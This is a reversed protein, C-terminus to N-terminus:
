RRRGNARTGGQTERSKLAFIDGGLHEFLDLRRVISYYVANRMGRENTTRVGRAQLQRVIEALTMEGGAAELVACIHWPMGGSHMRPSGGTTRALNTTTGTAPTTGVGAAQPMAQRKERLQSLYREELQLRTRLAHLQEEAQQIMDDLIDAENM